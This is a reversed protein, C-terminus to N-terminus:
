IQVNPAPLFPQREDGITAGNMVDLSVTRWLLSHKGGVLWDGIPAKPYGETWETYRLAENAYANFEVFHVPRLERNGPIVFRPSPDRRDDLMHISVSNYDGYQTM